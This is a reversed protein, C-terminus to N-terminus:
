DGSSSSCHIRSVELWNDGDQSWEKKWEFKGTTMDFFTIRNLNGRADRGDQLMVIKDQTSLATYTGPKASGPTLWTLVWKEEKPNYVRLNIGRVRLSEDAIAESKPPSTYNDQLGWGDFAWRFDWDSSPGAIWRTGDRSLSESDCRWQGVIQGWHMLQAPAGNAISGPTFGGYEAKMALPNHDATQSEKSNAHSTFTAVALTFILFGTCVKRIIM